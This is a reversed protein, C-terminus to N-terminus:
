EGEYVDRLGGAARLRALGQLVEGRFAVLDLATDIAATETPAGLLAKARDLKRQDVLVNKRKWVAPPAAAHTAARRVTRVVGERSM